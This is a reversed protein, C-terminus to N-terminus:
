DSDYTDPELPLGLDDDLSRNVNALDEIERLCSLIYWFVGHQDRQAM